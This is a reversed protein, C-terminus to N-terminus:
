GVTSSEDSVSPEPSAESTPVDVSASPSSPVQNDEYDDDFGYDSNPFLDTLDDCRIDYVTGSDPDEILMPFDTEGSMAMDIIQGVTLAQDPVALKISSVKEDTFERPSLNSYIRPAM